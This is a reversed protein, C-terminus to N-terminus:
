YKSHFISYDYVIILLTFSIFLQTEYCVIHGVDSTSGPSTNIDHEESILSSPYWLIEKRGLFVWMKISFLRMSRQNHSGYLAQGNTQYQCLFPSSRVAGEERLGLETTCVLSAGCGSHTHACVLLYKVLAEGKHLWPFKYCHTYDTSSLAHSPQLRWMALSMVVLTGSYTWATCEHRSGTEKASIQIEAACM